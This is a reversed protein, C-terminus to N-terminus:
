ETRAALVAFIAALARNVDSNRSPIRAVGIAAYRLARQQLAIGLGDEIARPVEFRRSAGTEPRDAFVSGHLRGRDNRAEVADIADRVCRANTEIRLACLVARVRDDFGELELCEACRPSSDPM